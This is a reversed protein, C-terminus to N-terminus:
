SRVYKARPQKAKKSKKEQRNTSTDSPASSNGSGSGLWQSLYPWIYGGLTYVAYGPLLVYLYWFLDSWLTGLHVFWTVYLVDFMYSTLGPMGLDEGSRLLDGRENYHPQGMSVLQQFVFFSVLFTAVYGLSSSWTVSSFQWLFRVLVYVLNVGYFLQRLRKITKANEVALKKAANNAM